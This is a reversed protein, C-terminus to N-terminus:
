LGCGAAGHGRTLPLTSAPGLRSSGPWPRSNGDAQCRSFQAVWAQAQDDDFPAALWDPPDLQHLGPRSKPWHQEPGSRLGIGHGPFSDIDCDLDDHFCDIEHSNGRCDVFSPETLLGILSNKSDPPNRFRPDHFILDPATIEITDMALIM